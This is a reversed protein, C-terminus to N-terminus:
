SPVSWLRFFIFISFISTKFYVATSPGSANGFADSRFKGTFPHFMIHFGKVRYSAKKTM